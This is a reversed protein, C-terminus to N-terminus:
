FTHARFLIVGCFKKRIFLFYRNTNSPVVCAYSIVGLILFHHSHLLHLHPARSIFNSRKQFSNVFFPLHSILSLTQWSPSLSEFSDSETSITESALVALQMVKLLWNCYKLYDTYLRLNLATLKIVM